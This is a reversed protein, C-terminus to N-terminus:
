RDRFYLNLFPIILGAGLGILTAPLALKLQLGWDVEALKQIQDWPTGAAGEASASGAASMRYFPIASLFTLACAAWLSWRLALRASETLAHFAHPLVGGLISGMISALFLATFAASFLYPRSEARVERMVVPAISLRFTTVVMGSLFAAPLLLEPAILIGQLLYTVATLAGASVLVRRPSVRHFLFAVPLTAIAAGLSIKSLIQGIAADGLGLERLYLNFLLSFVSAGLGCLFLGYLYFRANM